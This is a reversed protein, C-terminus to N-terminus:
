HTSGNSCDIHLQKWVGTYILRNHQGPNNIAIMLQYWGADLNYQFNNGNMFHVLVHWEGASMIDNFVDSLIDSM